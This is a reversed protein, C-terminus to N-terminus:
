QDPAIRDGEEQHHTRGQHGRSQDEVQGLPVLMHMDMLRHLVLVPVDMIFVMLMGVPRVVGRALRVGVRMTMLPHLVRVRVVRINMM